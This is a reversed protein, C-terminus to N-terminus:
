AKYRLMAGVGGAGALLEPNEIFTVKARTQEAKTVLDAGDQVPEQAASVMLEDVQGKTLARFAATPGLVALGGRKYEGILLDVKEVDGRADHERVCELTAKRVDHEPTLIDLRLIGVVKEKVQPPLQDELLPRIVEDGALVVADVRQERVMRDLTVAVEKAHLLHRNDVHRQYNAQSWGGGDSRTLKDSAVEHRAILQNLGFLYLRAHNTDAVVAAYQRFQDDVRALMYLHPETSVYLRNDDIPAETQIGEFFGGEGSCAFIACGNSSPLLEDRLYLNIREIDREVSERERSRKPYANAAALLKKRVFPGFRDRGQEGAQTNLYLSLFPFRSPEVAALRSLYESLTM